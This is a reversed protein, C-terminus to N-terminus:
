SLSFTKNQSKNYTKGNDNKHGCYSDNDNCNCRSLIEEVLLTISLIGNDKLSQIVSSCHKKTMQVNM